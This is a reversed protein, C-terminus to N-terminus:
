RLITEYGSSRLTVGAVFSLLSGLNRSLLMPKDTIMRCHLSTVGSSIKRNDPSPIYWNGPATCGPYIETYPPRSQHRPNTVTVVLRATNRVRVPLRRRIKRSIRRAKTGSRLPVISRRLLGITLPSIFYPKLLFVPRASNVIRLSPFYLGGRALEVWVLM